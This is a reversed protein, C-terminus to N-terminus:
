YRRNIILRWPLVLGEKMINGSIKSDGRMRDTFTIPVEIIRAGKRFLYYKLEMLFAYGSAHIKRLDIKKLFDSRMLIFGATMDRFPTLLIARAYLNGFYSLCLRRLPWNKIEGGKVYRSGIVVDNTEIKELMGLIYRPNHSFDADMTLYLDYKDQRMLELITDLYASALGLKGLRKRLHIQPFESVLKEVISATGDPSNDDIVHIDAEPVQEITARIIEDINELENYTPFLIALRM